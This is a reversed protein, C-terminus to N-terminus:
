LKTVEELRMFGKSGNEPNIVDVCPIFSWDDLCEGTGAFRKIYTDSTVIFKTSTYKSMILDGKSIYGM